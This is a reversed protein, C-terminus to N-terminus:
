LSIHENFVVANCMNNYLMYNYTYKFLGDLLNFAHQLIELLDHM